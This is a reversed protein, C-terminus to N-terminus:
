VPYGNVDGLFAHDFQEVGQVQGVGRVPRVM